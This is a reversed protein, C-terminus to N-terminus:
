KEKDYDLAKLKMKFKAAIQQKDKYDIHHLDTYEKLLRQVIHKVTSPLDKYMHSAANIDLSKGYWLECQLQVVYSFPQDIETSVERVIKLLEKSGLADASRRITGYIASLNFFTFMQHAFDTLEKRSLLDGAVRQIREAAYEVFEKESQQLGTLIHRCIRRYADLANRYCEKLHLRKLEGAHNKLIHGVVEITRIAKYLRALEENLMDDDPADDHETNDKTSAVERRNSESRDYEEIIEANLRNAIDEIHQLEDRTLAIEAQDSYLERTRGLIEKILTMNKSHHVLFIGIYANDIKELGSFIDAIKKIVDPDDMHDAMYKSVFYHFFYPAFFQYQGLSGKCFVNIESIRKKFYRAEFPMNYDNAYAELLQDLDPESMSRIGELHFHFAVNGFINLFAGIEGESIGANQLSIYILAQYCHAKSTLEGRLPASNERAALITLIYFPTYPIIGRVFTNQLYEALDDQACYNANEIECFEIWRDILEARLVYGFEGIAYSEFKETIRRKEISGSFLLDVFVIPFWNTQRDIDELYDRQQKLGLLHFDDLLLAILRDDPLSERSVSYEEKLALDIKQGFSGKENEKFKLYLPILQESELIEQFFKKALSTKGYQDDGAILIRRPNETFRELVESSDFKYRNSDEPNEGILEPYVYFTELTSTESGSTYVFDASDLHATFDATPRLEKNPLIQETEPLNELGSAHLFFYGFFDKVRIGYKKYEDSIFFSSDFVSEYLDQSIGFVLNSDPNQELSDRLPQSDLYRAATNIGDGVFGDTTRSESQNFITQSPDFKGVHVIARVRIGDLQSAAQSMLKMGTLIQEYHGTDILLYGGDGSDLTSRKKFVPLDKTTHGVFTSLIKRKEDLEDTRVTSSFGRIDFGIIVGYM